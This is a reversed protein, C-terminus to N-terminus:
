SNEQLKRNVKLLNITYSVINQTEQVISIYVMSVKTSAQNIQIRKLQRRKMQNFQNVLDKNNIYLDKRAEYDGTEIINIAEQLFNTVSETTIRLEKKQEEDLPNFNNDIHEECAVSMRALDYILEGIFDNAQHFYLGREFADKASLKRISLTGLRKMKKVDDKHSDIKAAL